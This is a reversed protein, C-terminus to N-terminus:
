NEKGSIVFAGDPKVAHLSVGATEAMNKWQLQQRQSFSNGVLIQRPHFVKMLAAVDPKTRYNVLIYDVPFRTATDVEKNLIVVTRGGVEFLEPKNTQLKEFAQLAVHAPQSAASVPSVGYRDSNIVVFSKGTILEAYSANPANYMIFYQQHLHVWENICSSGALVCGIALLTVIAPRWNLYRWVVVVAILMLCLCLQLENLYLYHLVDPTHLQFFYVLDNFRSVIRCLVAGIWAAIAPWAACIFIALSLILVAELMVFALPTAILFWIPFVHFCYIILPAIIIQVSICVAVTRYLVGLIRHGPRYMKLLWPYFIMVSLVAAFSLQFGITFIAQPYLVLLVFTTFCLTNFNVRSRDTIYAVALVSFMIAARIASHEAGTMMVYLWVLPLAAIYKVWRHKRHRVWFLLVSVVWFLVLIQCGSIALIHIVGADAYSRVTYPDVESGDGLLIDKVLAAAVPNRIFADLQQKCWTRVHLTTPQALPDAQAFLMATGSRCYQEYFINNRRWYATQDFEFPNGANRITDWGSPVMLTDGDRYTMSAGTREIYLLASGTIHFVRDNDIRAVTAVNFCWAEGAVVPDGIVRVLYKSYPKLHYGMWCPENRDDSCCATLYGALVIAICGITFVLPMIAASIRKRIVLLLFVVVIIAMAALIASFKGHLCPFVSYGCIGFIFFLVIRFFPATEWFKTNIRFPM